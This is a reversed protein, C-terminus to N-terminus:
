FSSKTIVIDKMIKKMNNMDIKGPEVEMVNATGCAAAMKISFEFDYGRLFASIFGGVISDERGLTNVISVKPIRIRYIYQNYFVILGEEDLSIIVIKIGDESLYKGGQIIEMDTAMKCGLYEEMEEKKLIVFYPAAEVAIKLAAASTNLFVKRGYENALTILEKFINSPLTSEISGCICIINHHFILEKYLKYFSIADDISILNAKEKIETYNGNQSLIRITNITEGKVYIFKHSIDKRELEKEIFNAGEKGVFGTVTAEKNFSKIINAVNIGKGGPVITYDRARYTQFVTFDEIRYWRDISPNLNIILTM